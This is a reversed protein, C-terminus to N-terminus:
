AGIEARLTVKRGGLFNELNVRYKDNVLNVPDILGWKIFDNLDFMNSFLLNKIIDSFLDSGAYGKEWPKNPNSGSPLFSFLFNKVDQNFYDQFEDDNDMHNKYMNYGVKCLAVIGLIIGSAGGKAASFAGSVLDWVEGIVEKKSTDVCPLWPVPLPNGPIIQPVSNLPNDMIAIHSLMMQPMQSGLADYDLIKLTKGGAQMLKKDTLVATRNCLVRNFRVEGTNSIQEYAMENLLMGGIGGIDAGITELKKPLDGATAQVINVAVSKSGKAKGKGLVASLAKNLIDVSSTIENVDKPNLGCTVLSFNFSPLDLLAKQSTNVIAFTSM